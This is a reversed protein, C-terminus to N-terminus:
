SSDILSVEVAIAWFWSFASKGSGASAGVDCVALFGWAQCTVFYPFGGYYMMINLHLVGRIYM